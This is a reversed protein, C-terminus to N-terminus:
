RDPRCLGRCVAGGSYGWVAFREAGLADALEAVMPPYSGVSWGGAPTTLGIGPRDPAVIRLGRQRAPGDSFAFGAGCAPVGHLTIVLEGAPDGFEYVGVVRGGGLEVASPQPIV